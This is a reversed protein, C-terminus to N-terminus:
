NKNGITALVGVALALVVGGVICPTFGYYIGSAIYIGCCIYGFKSIGKRLLYGLYNWNIKVKKM